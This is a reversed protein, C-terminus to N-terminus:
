RVVQVRVAVSSAAPVIRHGAIPSSAVLQTAYTQYANGAAHVHWGAGWM